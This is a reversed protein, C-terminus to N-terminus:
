REEGEADAKNDERAHAPEFGVDRGDVLVEDEGDDDGFYAHQVDNVSM